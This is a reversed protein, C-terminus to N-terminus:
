HGIAKGYLRSALEHAADATRPGFGLLYGGDMRIIAKEKGAPTAAIAPIALLDEDSPGPGANAMLLIADPRANLIAEDALPRYGQFGDIANVAGSLRIMGDAATGTGSALVKGSQLSLVFLVRKRDAIDATQSEVAKLREDVKAALAEAADEAGLAKGVTRIKALVGNHDFTEAVEIYPVDAKKLVEVAEKPGSGQIALIGSPRVSLVGEPSLQRMYGVDPLKLAEEPYRSTSDRAVLKGGEGIAFAIETISGGISAIRSADEFRGKAETARAVPSLAALLLALLAVARGGRQLLSPRREPMGEAM